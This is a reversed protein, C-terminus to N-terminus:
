VAVQSSTDIKGKSLPGLETDGPAFTQDGFPRQEIKYELNGTPFLDYM